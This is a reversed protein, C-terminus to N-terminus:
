PLIEFYPCHKLDLIKKSRRAFVPNGTHINSEEAIHQLQEILKADQIVFMM